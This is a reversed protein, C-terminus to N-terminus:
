SWVSDGQLDYLFGLRLLEGRVIGTFECAVLVRMSDERLVARQSIVGDPM